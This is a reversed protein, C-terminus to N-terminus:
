LPSVKEAPEEEPEIQGRDMNDEIKDGEEQSCAKDEIKDEVAEVAAAGVSEEEVRGEAEELFEIVLQESQCDEEM